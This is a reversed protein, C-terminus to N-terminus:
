TQTFSDLIKELSSAAAVVLEQDLMQALQIVEMVKSRESQTLASTKLRQELLMLGTRAVLETKKALALWEPNEDLLPQLAARNDIWREFQTRLAQYDANNRPNQLWLELRQNFLRLQANEAPLADALRNLPDAKSYTEYTSKEHQRHYYHAPELMEAFIKMPTIDSKGALSQLAAIQQQRHLLGISKEAWIEASDMRVYMSNEDQLDRASWLREAVIFARPWLRLDISQEDVIEAWLAAEGGLILSEQQASLHAVPEMKPLQKQANINTIKQGDQLSFNNRIKEGSIVYPTNGVMATGSINDAVFNVRFEVPGMWTDLSFVADNKTHQKLLVERRSKGTFDIFTQRINKDDNVFSFTGTVPKGRKRPMEFRWSTVTENDKIDVVVPKPPIPDNRYHYAGTQAQDLYYGTSLISQFGHSVADSVGDPGRWSHIVIDRPLDKHQIEDWGIMKRQHKHLIKQLRQNFYAQLARHDKLGQEKMFSQIAPNTNWQEPDVEDGGIHLYEFPFLEAVEAIIADAFEYVKEDAPNLTPKHVGWRYEMPYPGPASILEPYAVAIASAHGPMDIEPLVQIGRARAYAVVDRIQRRTYYEGDSALKHLKPYKKSEFRWGQDDTLHWHFINYKAAAMADIQRKITAVSFFHRSTDLLLGRWKFRPHDNINVLPLQINPATGILQLLTELGRQAGVLQKAALEIKTASINLQYSENWDDIHNAIPQIDEIRIILQAKAVATKKLRLKHGTQQKVRVGLDKLIKNLQASQKGDIAFNLNKNLVLQGQQREVAQPYPMLLLQETQANAWVSCLLCTLLLLYKTMMM